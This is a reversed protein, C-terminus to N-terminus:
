CPILAPFSLKSERLAARSPALAAQVVVPVTPTAAGLELAAAACPMGTSPYPRAAAAVTGAPARARSAARITAVVAALAASAVGAAVSAVAVSTGM